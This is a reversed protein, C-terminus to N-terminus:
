VVSCEEVNDWARVGSVILIKNPSSNVVLCRERESVMSCIEVWQGEVLQHISKVPSTGRRGGVVVLQGGLSAATSYTVPLAPLAKWAILPPAIRQGSQPLAQLSCSYGRAGYGIVHIVDGCMAVSPAMLPEPLDTVRYWKRSNVEFLDVAVTWHEGAICGGIVFVYGSGTDVVAPSSRATKLPPYKEVWRGGQLALSRLLSEGSVSVLEGYSYVLGSDYTHCPTIEDWKGTSWEYRYLLRSEYPTFYAYRSDSAASGRLMRLPAKQKPCCVVSLQIPSYVFYNDTTCSLISVCLHVMLM